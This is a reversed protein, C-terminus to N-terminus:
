KFKKGMNIENYVFEKKLNLFTRSPTDMGQGHGCIITTDPKPLPILGKKGM